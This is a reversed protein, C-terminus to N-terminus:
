EEVQKIFEVSAHLKVDDSVVVGGAETVASWQLGFDRRNVKGNLEFGARENGWPDKMVGGFNVDFTVPKTVGRMTLEGTLKYTEEDIKQMTKGTFKIEPHEAADFFETSKLHEDRQANKTEISDVKASFCIIATSFDGDQTEVTADFDKFHGNVNTIMMHKIKFSIDSHTPDLVWKTTAM